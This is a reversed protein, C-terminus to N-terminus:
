PPLPCPPRCLPLCPTAGCAVGEWGSMTQSAQPVALARAERNQELQPAVMDPITQLRHPLVVCDPALNQACHPLVNYLAACWLTLM